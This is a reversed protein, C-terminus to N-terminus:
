QAVSFGKLRMGEAMAQLPLRWAPDSSYDGVKYNQSRIRNPDFAFAEADVSLFSALRAYAQRPDACLSEYGLELLAGRAGLHHTANQREIELVCDNWYGACALRFADQNAFRDAYKSWDKQVLSEVAPPGSRYIHCFRADPFIDLIVPLLFTIMASKQVLCGAPCVIEYPAGYSITHLCYM